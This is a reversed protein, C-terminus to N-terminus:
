HGPMGQYKFSITYDHGACAPCHDKLEAVNSRQVIAVNNPHGDAGVHFRVTVKGELTNLSRDWPSAVPFAKTAELAAMIPASSGIEGRPSILADEASARVAPLLVAAILAASATSYFTNKNM